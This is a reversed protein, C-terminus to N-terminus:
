GVAERPHAHRITPNNTRGHVPNDTVGGAGGPPVNTKGLLIAGAQRMRAVAVADEKPVVGIRSSIGASTEVGATDFVDKATFPVGHLPGLTDRRALSADAARAEALARERPLVVVADITPDVAEIRQLFAQVVEVSSVVRERIAKAITVAGGLWIEEV